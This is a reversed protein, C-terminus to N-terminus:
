PLQVPTCCLMLTPIYAKSCAQNLLILILTIHILATHLGLVNLQDHCLGTDASGLSDFCQLLSLTIYDAGNHFQRHLWFLTVIAPSVFAAAETVDQMHKHQHATYSDLVQLTQSLTHM